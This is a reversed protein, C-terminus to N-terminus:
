DSEKTHVLNKIKSKYKRLGYLRSSFCHIIALLDQTVEETPSLKEQNMVVIECGHREAFQEFWEYGFRVLRDKHAVVLRSVKGMEIDIFLKNFKKRKYNLGSGTESLWETVPYGSAICFAELAEVQNKLDPKQAASSVRSYVVTAGKGHDAKIGIYALYQDHTYFRRNKANRQAILSKDTDWRQLTKVSKGILKGFQAPSYM